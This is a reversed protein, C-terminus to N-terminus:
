QDGPFKMVGDERDEVKEEHPKARRGVYFSRPCALNSIHDMEATYVLDDENGGTGINSEPRTAAILITMM